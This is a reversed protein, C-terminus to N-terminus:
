YKWSIDFNWRWTDPRATALALSAPSDMYYSGKTLVSFGWKLKKSFVGDIEQGLDEGTRDSWFHHYVFKGKIGWPLSPALTVFLDRLGGTANNDLWLDAFGNFKHATALPTVFRAGDVGGDGLMEYGVGLGAIPKYSFMASAWVYHADYSPNPNAGAATQYAYSGAYDLKWSEGFGHDGTIRFGYSNSSNTRSRLDENRLNLAYAFWVLKPGSDFDYSVNVAHSNSAFDRTLRSSTEDGFIRKIHWLYSYSVKLGKWGADALFSDFTQENQRWGVNGVFRADDYIIRQRGAIATVPYDGKRQYKAFGRNLQTVEPDVIPTKMGPNPGVGDWYCSKCFAAVNEMEAFVSFGHFPKTGAGLRTRLTPAQSQALGKKEALETRFRMDITVKYFKNDLAFEVNDLATREEDGADPADDSAAPMAAM